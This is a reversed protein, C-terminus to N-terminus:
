HDDWHGDHEAQLATMPPPHEGEFRPTIVDALSDRPSRM